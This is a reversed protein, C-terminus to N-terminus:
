VEALVLSLRSATNQFSAVSIADLLGLDDLGLSRLEALVADSLRWPARTLLEGFRALLQERANTPAADEFRLHGRRDALSAAVARALVRRDRRSLPAERELVYQEWQRFPAHTNPRQALTMALPAPRQPWAAPEPLPLPERSRDVRMKPLPSDYDFEIDVADAVRNLYNFYSALVVAHLISPESMGARALAELDSREITWPAEALM